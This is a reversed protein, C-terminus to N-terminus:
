GQKTVEAAVSQPIIKNVFEAAADADRAFKMFMDSYVPTETFEKSLKEDKEFRRGDPSKVGYARKILDKFVDMIRKTDKAAVIQELMRQMGGTVGYEMEVIEAESLNFLFDETREVGDYDTYTATYKYM